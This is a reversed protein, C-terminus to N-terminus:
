ENRRQWLSQFCPTFPSTFTLIEGTDQALHALMKSNTFHSESVVCSLLLTPAIGLVVVFGDVKSKLIFHTSNGEKKALSTIGRVFSQLEADQHMETLTWNAESPKSGQQQPQSFVTLAVNAPITESM